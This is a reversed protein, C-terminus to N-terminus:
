MVAPIPHGVKRVRVRRQADERCDILYPRGSVPKGPERLDLGEQSAGAAYSVMGKLYRCISQPIQSSYGTNALCLFLATLSGPAGPSIKGALMPMRNPVTKRSAPPEESYLSM